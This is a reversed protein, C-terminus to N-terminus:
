AGYKFFEELFDKLTAAAMYSLSDNIETVLIEFCGLNQLMASSDAVVVILESRM